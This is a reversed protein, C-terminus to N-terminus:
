AYVMYRDCVPCKRRTLSNPSVAQCGCKECFWKVETQKAAEAARVKKIQFTAGAETHTEVFENDVEIM